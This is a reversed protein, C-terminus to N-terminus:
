TCRGPEAAIQSATENKGAWLSQRVFIFVVTASGFLSKNSVRRGEFDLPGRRGPQARCHAGGPRAARPRLRRRHPLPSLAPRRAASTPMPRPAADAGTGPRARGSDAGPATATVAGPPARGSDADDAEHDDRRVDADDARRRHM